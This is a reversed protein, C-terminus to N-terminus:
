SGLGASAVSAQHQCSQRWAFFLEVSQPCLQSGAVEQIIGAAKDHPMGKRYPRDSIMADYTDAVSTMRAWLPIQTGKLQHPYGRGDYREHHHLVIPVVEALSPIAQLIKAGQEPHSKIQAFEEDTLKGAKLLVDDRVGIKGIDHLSASIQLLERSHEDFGAVAAMGDVITAVSISHGQTYKDRAELANVLSTISALMMDRELNLFERERLVLQFQDSLLREVLIGLEDPQFPKELYGAIGYHFLKRIRRRDQSATMIVFPIDALRSDQQVAECFAFGNMQPMDLDSLILDIPQAQLVQLAALGHEATAVRFGSMELNSQVIKRIVPSDDVVLIKKKQLISSKNLINSIIELFREPSDGKSIFADAGSEYARDISDDGDFSSVFVFPIGKTAPLSKLLSCFDFGGMVPMDIDSLVLDCPQGQQLLEFAQHGNEAQSIDADFAKLRSAMNLRISKQDDVILINLKGM